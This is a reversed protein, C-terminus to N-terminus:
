LEGRKAKDVLDTYKPNRRTQREKLKELFLDMGYLEIAADIPNGAQKFVYNDLKMLNYDTGPEIYLKIPEAANVLNNWYPAVPWRRKNSDNAPTIYTLYNQLVGAFRDGIPLSSSIFSFAREDRLQMEIRIWHEGVRKREAAKDYIRLKIASSPSGHEVTCGKNSETIMWDQFRSRFNQARCDAALESIDLIGTHDDFAIDLRTLHVGDPEDRVLNFLSEYDGTGYSEFARCGQGSMELWVNVDERGFMISIGDYYMGFPFGRAGKDRNHWPCDRMGLLDIIDALSHIKSTISVWDYLICDQM